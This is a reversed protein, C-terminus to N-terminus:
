PRVFAVPGSVATRGSSSRAIAVVSIPRRRAFRGPEIVLRYPRAEDTGLRVWGDTGSSRFAFTVAAPDTGSVTARLRVVGAVPDREPASLTVSPTGTAPLPRTARLVISGRRPVRIRLRGTADTTAGHAGAPWVAAFRTGPSSTPVQVFRAATGNNLAVVYELRREADIRSVAFVGRAGPGGAFRTIQAGSRLAPNDQVLAALARIRRAVPHSLDWSARTGVPDGGLRPERRWEPVRTPFMDQRAARDVGDGSGTMGVEDGAMIVPAGRLLLLADHALLDSELARTRDGRAARLVAFGVRGIDHNGLFTALSLASATPTTYLDDQDFLARLDAGTGAGSAFPVVASQFAFDLVSKMGLRRVSAATAAQDFVEGFVAFGPVGAEQAARRVAPLFARWFAPGVHRVTDLRFGDLRYDRIWQSWLEIEGRVVQPRETFLDDLGYVDGFTLSEGQFSSDGRNHYNRMDDLWDPQKLHRDDDSVVPVYPFSRKDPHLDPFDDSGALATPSFRRGDTGRYPATQQDVYFAGASGEGEYGIVDGTHNVVVDLVVRLGLQHARAVFRGFDERDGLHPDVRTFDVGWYGHYGASGDQVTRQVVPPTVWIATAGLRALYPLRATLGALDGGHFFGTDAPDFGTVERGGVAGGRDNGPDGNAFRDIMVFVTRQGALPQVVRRTLAVREAASPFTPAPLASAPVQLLAAVVAAGLVAGLAPPQRRV